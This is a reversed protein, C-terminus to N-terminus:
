PMRPDETPPPASNTQSDTSAEQEARRATQYARILEVTDHWGNAEGTGETDGIHKMAQGLLQVELALRATSLKELQVWTRLVSQARQCAPCLRVTGHGRRRRPGRQRDAGDVPGRPCICKEPWDALAKICADTCAKALEDQGPLGSQRHATRLQRRVRKLWALRDVREPSVSALVSDDTERSM